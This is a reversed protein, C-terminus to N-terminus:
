GEDRRKPADRQCTGEAREKLADRRRTRLADRDCGLAANQRGGDDKEPYPTHTLPLTINEDLLPTTKRTKKDNRDARYSQNLWKNANHAIFQTGPM